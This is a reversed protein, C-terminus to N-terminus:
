ALRNASCSPPLCRVWWADAHELCQTGVGGATATDHAEARGDGREDQDPARRRRQPPTLAAKARLEGSVRPRSPAPRRTRSSCSTGGLILLWPASARSSRPASSQRRGATTLKGTSWESCGGVCQEYERELENYALLGADRRAAPLGEVVERADELGRQVSALDARAEAALDRALAASKATRLRPLQYGRVDSLTRNLTQLAPTPDLAQPPIPPM